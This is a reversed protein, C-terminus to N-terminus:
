ADGGEDAPVADRTGPARGFQGAVLHGAVAALDVSRFNCAACVFTDGVTEIVHRQVLDPAKPGPLRDPAAREFDRGSIAPNGRDTM